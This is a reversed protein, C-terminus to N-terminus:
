AELSHQRQFYLRSGLAGPLPTFVVRVFPRAESSPDDLTPATATDFALATTTPAIFQICGHPVSGNADVDSCEFNATIRQKARTDAAENPAAASVVETLPLLNGYMDRDAGDIFAPVPPGSGYSAAAAALGRVPRLIGALFPTGGGGILFPSVAAFGFTGSSDPGFVVNYYTKRRLRGFPAPSVSIGLAGLGALLAGLLGLIGDAHSAAGAAVAIMDLM